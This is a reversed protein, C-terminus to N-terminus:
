PTPPEFYSRLLQLLVAAGEPTLGHSFMVTRVAERALVPLKYGTAQEVEALATHVARLREGINKLRQERQQAATPDDFFVDKATDLAQSAQKDPLLPDGDGTLLWMVNVGAGALKTLADGGPIRNGAEYDKFSPLPMDMAAAFAKQTQGKLTRAQKLRRAIEENEQM